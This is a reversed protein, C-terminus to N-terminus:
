FERAVRNERGIWGNKGRRRGEVGNRKNERSKKGRRRGWENESM